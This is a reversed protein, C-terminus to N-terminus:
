LTTNKKNIFDVVDDLKYACCFNFTIAESKLKYNFDDIQGNNKQCFDETNITYFVRKQSFSSVNLYRSMELMTEWITCDKFENKKKAPPDKQVVRTHANFTINPNIRLFSTKHLIDLAINQLKYELDDLILSESIKNARTLNNLVIISHKHYNTTKILSNKMEDLVADVNDNWETINTECSVSIIDGNEIKNAIDQLKIIFNYDREDRYIFRIIDLLACTDWFIIPKDPTEKVKLVFDEISICSTNNKEIKNM